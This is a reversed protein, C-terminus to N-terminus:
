AGDKTRALLEGVEPHLTITTEALEASWIVGMTVLIGCLYNNTQMSWAKSFSFCMM